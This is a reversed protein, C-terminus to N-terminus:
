CFYRAIAAIIILVGVVIAALVASDTDEMFTKLNKKEKEEM